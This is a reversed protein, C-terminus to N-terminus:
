RRVPFTFTRHVGPHCAFQSTHGWQLVRSRVSDPVFLRCPPVGSPAPHSRLARRVVTEIGWAVVGVVKAEPVIPVSEETARREQHLRSLADAKINCSGPCYTLSFDFRSLFGACRAQRGNLRKTARIFTVNKHDTWITFPQEAGELWHHWEELAAVVALLERNGIDYNEV